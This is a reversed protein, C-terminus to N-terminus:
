VVPKPTRREGGRWELRIKLSVVVAIGSLLSLGRRGRRRKMGMVCEEFIGGFAVVM